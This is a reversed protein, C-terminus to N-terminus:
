RTETTTTTTTTYAEIEPDWRVVPISPCVAVGTVANHQAVIQRIRCVVAYHDLGRRAGINWTRVDEPGIDHGYAPGNKWNYVTGILGDDFRVIWEWDTKGDGFARVLGAYANPLDLLGAHSTGGADLSDPGNHSEYTDPHITKM